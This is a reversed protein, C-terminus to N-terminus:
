GTISAFRHQIAASCRVTTKEVRFNWLDYATPIRWHAPFLEFFSTSLKNSNRIKPLPSITNCILTPLDQQSDPHLYRTSRQQPVWVYEQFDTLSVGYNGLPEAGLQTVHSAGNFQNM